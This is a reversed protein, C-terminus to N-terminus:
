SQSQKQELGLSGLERHALAFKPSDVHLSLANETAYEEVAQVVGPWRRRNFDDGVMVGGEALIPFYNAIDKKVPEYEHAADIYIFEPALGLNRLIDIANDSTQPLPVITDQHGTHLVNALFQFYLQPYGNRLNLSEYTHDRRLYIGPSGLWTDICLITTSLGIRRAEDAMFIASGGKWSGVEVILSPRLEQVMKSMLRHKSGWGQMDAPWNELPFGDFPNTQHLRDLLPATSDNVITTRAM